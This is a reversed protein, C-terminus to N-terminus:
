KTVLLACNTLRAHRFVMWEGQQGAREEQSRKGGRREWKELHNMREKVIRKWEKRNSTVKGIRTKDIGAEKVLQKWYLVTKRKKGKMKQVGELDEMWGLVAAKVIRDDEMRMVHGIRELCRKEM